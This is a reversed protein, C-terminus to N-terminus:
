DTAHEFDYEDGEEEDDNKRKQTSIKSILKRIEAMRELIKAINPQSENDLLEHECEELEVMLATITRSKSKQFKVARQSGNVFQCCRVWVTKLKNDTNTM